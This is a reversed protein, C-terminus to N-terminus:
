CSQKFREPRYPNLMDVRAGDVIELTALEGILPALTVGSHMLAIYLNPVSPVFGLVPFGDIPMPRYGVPVPIASAGDISPVYYKARTLLDDAHQQSDDRNLSEQSGQGILLTGDPTQRLHVDGRSDDIRPAHIVSVSNLVPDCPTTRVVIGPSEQQPIHVGAMAALQTTHVGGTLVVTDCAVEDSSTKVVKIQRSSNSGNEVFMGCVRTETRVVAGRRRAQDLCAEIVKPPEVCVDAQSLSAATVTGPQMGPELQRIESGSVFRCAYGRAQLQKVRLRLANAGDDTNEWRLQGGCHFGIDRDLQHAFRHWMDMSRCNLNHYAVPDKGFSNLWAFSHGSAGSGPQSKELITVDINNRHSLFYAISAGVIGAGIVVVHIKVKTNM